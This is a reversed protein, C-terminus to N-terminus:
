LVRVRCALAGDAHYCRRQTAGRRADDHRREEDRLILSTDRMFAPLRACAEQNARAECARVRPQLMKRRARCPSRYRIGRKMYAVEKRKKRRGSRRAYWILEFAHRQVTPGCIAYRAVEDNRKANPKRGRNGHEARLM